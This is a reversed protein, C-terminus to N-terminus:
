IELLILNISPKLRQGRISRLVDHFLTKRQEETSSILSYFRLSMTLTELMIECLPESLASLTSYVAVNRIFDSLTDPLNKIQAIIEFERPQLYQDCNLFLSLLSFYEEGLTYLSQIEEPIVQSNVNRMYKLNVDNLLLVHYNKLWKLFQKMSFTQLTLFGGYLNSLTDDVITAEHPKRTTKYSSM